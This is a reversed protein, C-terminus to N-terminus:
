NESELLKLRDELEEVEQTGYHFRTSIRAIELAERLYGEEKYIGILRRFATVGAFHTGEENEYSITEPYKELLQINLRCLKEIEEVVWPEKRVFSHLEDHTRQLAFHYDSLIGPLELNEYIQRLLTQAESEGPRPQTEYHHAPSASSSGNDHEWSLSKSRKGGFDYYNIKPVSGRGSLSRFDVREPSEYRIGPIEAFRPFWKDDNNM